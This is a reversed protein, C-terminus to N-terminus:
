RLSAPAPGSAFRKMLVEVTLTLLLIVDVAIMITLAPLPHVVPTVALAALAGVVRVWPLRGTVSWDFLCSGLLFLAPGALVILTRTVSVEAVPEDAITRAGASICVVGAVMMLHWYSAFTGLRILEVRAAAEPELLSHIQEFYLQFLLIVSGISLAFVVIQSASFDSAAFGMSAALILEGFAIIVIQRHREALHPATFIRSALDTRGLRPTPWGIRASGYDIVVAVTWLVLQARGGILAGALWPVASVGLWFFVRISRAQIDPNVRTGPILVFDRALHIAFYASVFVIGHGHFAEPMATAMVIAGVAVAMVLNRIVPVRPDFLDTLWATLVWVWWGALLMVATQALAWPSEDAMLSEALRLFIFLYALDFFLEVFTPYEADGRKRLIRPLQEGSVEGGAM